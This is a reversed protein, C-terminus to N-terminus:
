TYNYALIVSALTWQLSINLSTGHHSNHKTMHLSYYKNAHLTVGSHSQKKVITTNYNNYYMISDRNDRKLWTIFQHDFLLHLFSM